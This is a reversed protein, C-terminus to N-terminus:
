KGQKANYREVAEATISGRLLKAACDACLLRHLTSLRMKIWGGRQVHIDSM